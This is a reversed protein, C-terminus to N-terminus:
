DNNVNEVKGELGEHKTVGGGIHERTNKGQEITRDVGRDVILVEM